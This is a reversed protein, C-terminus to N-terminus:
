WRSTKRAHAKLFGESWITLVPESWCPLLIFTVVLPYHPDIDGWPQRLDMDRGERSSYSFKPPHYALQNPNFSWWCPAHINVQSHHETSYWVQHFILSTDLGAAKGHVVFLSSLLMETLIKLTNGLTIQHLNKYSIGSSQWPNWLSPSNASYFFDSTVCLDLSIWINL